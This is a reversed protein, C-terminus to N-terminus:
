HVMQVKHAFGPLYNDNRDFKYRFLIGSYPQLHSTLNIMNIPHFDYNLDDNKFHLVDKTERTTKMETLTCLSFYYQHRDQLVDKRYILMLIM